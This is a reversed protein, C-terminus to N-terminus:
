ARCVWALEPLSILAAISGLSVSGASPLSTVTLPDSSLWPSMWPSETLVVALVVVGGVELALDEADVRGGPGDRDAGAIVVLDGAGCDQDVDGGRKVEGGVVDAVDDLEDRGEFGVAAVGGDSGGFVVAGLFGVSLVVM